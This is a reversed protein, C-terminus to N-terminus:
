FFHYSQSSIQHWNWLRCNRGTVARKSIAPGTLSHAAMGCLLKQQLDMQIVASGKLTKIYRIFVLLYDVINLGDNFIVGILKDVQPPGTRTTSM